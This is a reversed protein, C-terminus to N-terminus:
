HTEIAVIITHHRNLNLYSSSKKSIWSAGHPHSSAVIDRLRDANSLQLRSYWLTKAPEDSKNSGLGGWSSDRTSTFFQSVMRSSSSRSFADLRVSAFSGM